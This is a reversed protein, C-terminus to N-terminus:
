YLGRLGIISGHGDDTPAIWAQSDGPDDAFLWWIGGSLLALGVAGTVWGAAEWTEAANKKDRFARERVDSTMTSPKSLGDAENAADHALWLMVGQGVIAAAGAGTLAWAGISPGDDTSAPQLQVANQERLTESSPPKPPAVTTAEPMADLAVKLAAGMGADITVTKAVDRFAQASVTVPYRGARVGIRRGNPVITDGLIISAHHPEVQIELWGFGGGCERGHKGLTKLIAARETDTADLDLGVVGIDFASCPQGSAAYITALILASSGNPLAEFTERATSMADKLEGKRYHEVTKEYTTKAKAIAQASPKQQKPRQPLRVQSAAQGAVAFIVFGM